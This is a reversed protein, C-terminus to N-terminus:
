RDYVDVKWHIIDAPLDSQNVVTHSSVSQNTSDDVSYGPLPTFAIRPQLLYDLAIVNNTNPSLPTNSTIFNFSIPNGTLTITDLNIILDITDGSIIAQYFRTSYTNFATPQNDIDQPTTILNEYLNGNYLLIYYSWNKGRDVGSLNQLPGLDSLPNSTDLVIYYYYNNAMPAATQLNIEMTRIKPPVVTTPAYRSCGSVAAILILFLASHTILKLFKKLVM